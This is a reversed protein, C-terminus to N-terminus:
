NVLRASRNQVVSRQEDGIVHGYVELTIRADSHRLNGSCSLLLQATWSCLVPRVMDCRICDAASLEWSLSFSICSNKGCNTPQSRDGAGISLPCSQCAMMGCSILV